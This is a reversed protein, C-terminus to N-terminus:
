WFRPKGRVRPPSGIIHACRRCITSNEGCVRPHDEDCWEDLRADITKGACAPTIRRRHDAGGEHFLKGRVRPPSGGRRVARRGRGQNEGCVRPHDQTYPSPSLSQLTKGACAPTIGIRDPVGDNGPRKGRVRPPSGVLICAYSNSGFNEGCVRPHDEDGDQIWATMVTKGACAPTIRRLNFSKPEEALKGRM